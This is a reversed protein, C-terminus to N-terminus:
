TLVTRCMGLLLRTHSGTVLTHHMSRRHSRVQYERWPRHRLVHVVAPRARSWPGSSARGTKSLCWCHCTQRLTPKEGLSRLPRPNARFCVGPHLNVNCTHLLNQKDRYDVRSPTAFRVTGRRARWYMCAAHRSSLCVPGNCKGVQVGKAEQLCQLSFLGVNAGADVVVAGDQVVLGHQLYSRRVFVEQLLPTCMDSSPWYPHHIHPLIYGRQICRLNYLVAALWLAAYPFYLLSQTSTNLPLICNLISFCAM